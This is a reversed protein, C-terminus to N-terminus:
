ALVPEGRHSAVWTRVAEVHQRWEPGLRLVLFDKFLRDQVKIWEELGSLQDDLVEHADKAETKPVKLGGVDLTAATITGRWEAEDRAVLVRMQSVKKAAALAAGAEVAEAPAGGRFSDKTADLEDGDLVLSEGVMMGYRGLDPWQFDGGTEDIRYWLWTLFEPGLYDMGGREDVPRDGKSGFAGFPHFARIM